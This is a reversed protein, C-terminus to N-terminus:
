RELVEDVWLAPGQQCTTSLDDRVTGRVTVMDGPKLGATAGVLTWTGQAATITLCGAEVGEDVTGTVTVPRGRGPPSTLTLDETYTWPPTPPQRAPTPGTPGTSAARESAGTSGDVSGCAAVTLALGLVLAMRVTVM